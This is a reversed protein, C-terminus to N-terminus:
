AVLYQDPILIHRREIFGLKGKHRIQVWNEQVSVVELPKGPEVAQMGSARPKVVPEDYISILWKTTFGLKVGKMKVEAWGKVPPGFELPQGPDPTFPVITSNVNKESYVDTKSACPCLDWFWVQQCSDIWKTDPVDKLKECGNKLNVGDFVDIHDIGQVKTKTINQFFVIGKKGKFAFSPDVSKSIIKVKGVLRTQKTLWDALEQARLIHKPSHGQWCREGQFSDLNVGSKELAIGMRIACQNEFAPRYANLMLNERLILYMQNGDVIKWKTGSGSGSSSMTIGEVTATPSLTISHKQLQKRLSDSVKEKQLTLNLEGERESAVSFLNTEICPYAHYLPLNDYLALWSLTPIPFLLDELYDSAVWGKLEKNDKDIYKVNYWTHNDSTQIEVSELTIKTGNPISVLINKTGDKTTADSRLSLGDSGTKVKFQEGIQLNGM